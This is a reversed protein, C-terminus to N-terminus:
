YDAGKHDGLSIEAVRTMLDSAIKNAEIPSLIVEMSRHPNSEIISLTIHSTGHDLSLFRIKQIKEEAFTKTNSM